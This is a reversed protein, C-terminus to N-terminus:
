VDCGLKLVRSGAGRLNADDGQVQDALVQGRHGARGAVQLHVRLQHPLQGVVVVRRQVRRVEVQVHLHTPASTHIAPITPIAPSPDTTM